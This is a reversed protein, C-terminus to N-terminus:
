LVELGGDFVYVGTQARYGKEDRFAALYNLTDGWCEPSLERTTSSSATITLTM